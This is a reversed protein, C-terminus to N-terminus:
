ITYRTMRYFLVRKERELQAITDQLHAYPKDANTISMANTTYGVLNNVDTQVKRYFCIQACLLVYREEDPLLEGYYILEIGDEECREEITSAAYQTARGTDVYLTKIGDVIWEECDEKTVEMPTRQWSVSDYLKRALKTLSQM